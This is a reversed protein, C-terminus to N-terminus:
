KVLYTSAIGSFFTVDSFMTTDKSNLSNASLMPDFQKIRRGIIGLSITLRLSRILDHDLKYLLLDILLWFPPM